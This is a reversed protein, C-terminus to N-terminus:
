WLFEGGGRMGQKVITRTFNNVAKTTTHETVNEKTITTVVKKNPALNQETKLNEQQTDEM